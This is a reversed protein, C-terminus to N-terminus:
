RNHPRTPISPAPRNPPAPRYARPPPGNQRREGHRPPAVHYGPGWGDYDYGSSVYAGGVYGGDPVLCAYLVTTLLIGFARVVWRRAVIKM